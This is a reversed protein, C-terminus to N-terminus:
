SSCLSIWIVYKYHLLFFNVLIWSSEYFPAFWAGVFLQSYFLGDFFYVQLLGPHSGSDSFIGESIHTVSVRVDLRMQGVSGSTPAELDGVSFALSSPTM